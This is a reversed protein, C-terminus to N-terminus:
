QYIDGINYFLITWDPSILVSYPNVFKTYETKAELPHELGGSNRPHRYLLRPHFCGQRVPYFYKSNRGGAIIDPAKKIMFDGQM